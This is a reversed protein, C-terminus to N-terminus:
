RSFSPRAIDPNDIQNGGIVAIRSESESQNASDASPDDFSPLSWSDCSSEHDTDIEMINERDAM